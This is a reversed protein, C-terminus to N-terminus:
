FPSAMVKAAKKKRKAPDPPLPLNDVSMYDEIDVGDGDWVGFSRGSERAARRWRDVRRLWATWVDVDIWKGMSDMSQEHILWEAHEAIRSYVEARSVHRLVHERGRKM